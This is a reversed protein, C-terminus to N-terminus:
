TREWQDDKGNFKTFTTTIADFKKYMESEQYAQCSSLM